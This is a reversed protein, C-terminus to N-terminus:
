FFLFKTRRVTISPENWKHPCWSISAVFTLPKCNDGNVVFFARISGEFDYKNPLGRPYSTDVWVNWYVEGTPRVEQEIIERLLSEELRIGYHRIRLRNFDIVAETTENKVWFLDLFFHSDPVIDVNRWDREGSWKVATPHYYRVSEVSHRKGLLEIKEILTIV